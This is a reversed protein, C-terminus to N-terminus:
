WTPRQIKFLHFPLEPSLEVYNYEKDWIYSNGSILDKMTLKEGPQVGMLEFPLRVMGWQRHFPDLNVVMLLQNHHDPTTKYYALLHNNEIPCFRINKFNQLAFNERRLKNLLTILYTLRNTHEWDWHKLEYKESYFYEEKGPIAEHQMFEFVPGYIGYSSSLTAAMFLRTMFVTENGTQMMYPNIDPTNPWFNPRFYEKSTTQTLETLYEIIEQKHIRWTYYTYSQTFGAKALQHMVKPATFAEALFLVDPYKKKVEEILWQWFRFPKTHPNDVRFITIGKKVWHLVVHLLENWLNQWDPSEFYIPLIDQYKKPPNEAYQVTGDPRWKFWQPHKAVYPHDPACQLALDMAIEIGKLKAQAILEEFDQMTGLEPHIDKHGGKASGIGWPSGVDNPQATTANNKGKRNVEGIPHVPPFYLVDFGMAAVRPLLRICDKFTGHKGPEQSASRPFFEYWTSFLAKHRDVYVQLSPYAVSFDRTPYNLFIQHLNESKVHLVAEHYRTEDTFLQKLYNLLGQEEETCMPLIKDIYQIGELLESTIHQRDDIKRIAGHQWTLAHDVWAEIAYDYLGQQQVIFGGEWRDNGIPKLAVQQWKKASRFRYKLIAAVVDHGDAFIDAEVHVYEGVVRKIYFKGGDLEPYVNEIIVRSQGHQM